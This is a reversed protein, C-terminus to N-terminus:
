DRRLVWRPPKSSVRGVLVIQPGPVFGAKRLEPTFERIAQDIIRIIGGAVGYYAVGDCGEALPGLRRMMRTTIVLEKM